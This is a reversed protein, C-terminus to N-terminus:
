AADKARTLGGRERWQIMKEISGYSDGPAENRFFLCWDRLCERNIDDAHATALFLDNCIVATLFDGVHSGTEIYRRTAERMHGPIRAYDINQPNMDAM